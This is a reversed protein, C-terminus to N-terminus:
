LTFLISRKYSFYCSFLIYMKYVFPNIAWCMRIRIFRSPNFQMCVYDFLIVIQIGVLIKIHYIINHNQVLPVHYMMNISIM